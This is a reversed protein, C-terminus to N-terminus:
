FFQMGTAKNTSGSAGAKSKHNGPKSASAAEAIAPQAKEGLVRKLVERTWLGVQESQEQSLVWKFTKFFELDKLNVSNADKSSMKAKMVDCAAIVAKRGRYKQQKFPGSETEANKVFVAFWELRLMLKSYFTDTLLDKSDPAIGRQMNSVLKMAMSLTGKSALTAKQFMPKKELACLQHGALELSVELRDSPLQKLVEDEILTALLSDAQDVFCLELNITRDLGRLTHSHKELAKKVDSFSTLTTDSVMDAMLARAKSYEALVEESVTITGKVQGSLIWDEYEIFPLCRITM